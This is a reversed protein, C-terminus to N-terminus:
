RFHKYKTSSNKGTGCAIIPLPRHDRIPRHNVGVGSVKGRGGGELRRIVMAARTSPTSREQRGVVREDTELNM